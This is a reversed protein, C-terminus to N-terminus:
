KDTDAVKQVGKKKKPVGLSEKTTFSWMTIASQLIFIFIPLKCIHDIRLMLRNLLDLGLKGKGIAVYM